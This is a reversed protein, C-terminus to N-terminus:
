RAQGTGTPDPSMIAMRIHKVAATESHLRDRAGVARRIGAIVSM